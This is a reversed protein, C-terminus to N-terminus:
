CIKGKITDEMVNKCLRKTVTTNREMTPSCNVEILWPIFDYAIIFDAGFLEFTNKRDIVRDQAVQLVNIIAQRMGPYIVDKWKHGENISELYTQFTNSDWM